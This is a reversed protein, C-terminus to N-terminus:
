SLFGQDLRAILGTVASIVAEWRVIERNGAFHYTQAEAAARNAWAIVVTGVPRQPRGGSPGAIGTIGIGADAHGLARAARAMQCATPESVIHDEDLCEPALGLITRKAAASYTVFGYEFWRSSGPIATFSAALLGGTCSEAVAVHLGQRSLEEGLDGCFTVLSARRETDM